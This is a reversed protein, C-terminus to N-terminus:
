DAIKELFGMNTKIRNKLPYDYLNDERQNKPSIQWNTKDSIDQITKKNFVIERM